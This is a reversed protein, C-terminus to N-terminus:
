EQPSISDVHHKWFKKQKEPTWKSRWRWASHAKSTCSASTDPFASPRSIRLIQSSAVPRCQHQFQWYVSWSIISYFFIFFVYSFSYFQVKQWFSCWKKWRKGHKKKKLYVNSINSSDDTAAWSPQLLQPVAAQREPHHGLSQHPWSTGFPLALPGQSHRCKQNKKKICALIHM